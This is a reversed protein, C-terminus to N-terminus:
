KQLNRIYFIYDTAPLTIGATKLYIGAQARHHTGHNIVHTLIDTLRNSFPNGKSDRYSITTEFDSSDLRSLYAVWKAHNEALITSLAAADWDPWLSGGIAPLDNCRKYWIQQAALMHALLRAAERNGDNALIADIILEGAYKDYQFLSLFYDKM